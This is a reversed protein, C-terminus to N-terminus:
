QLEVLAALGGEFAAVQVRVDLERLLREIVEEAVRSLSLSVAVIVRIPDRVSARRALAPRRRRRGRGVPVTVKRNVSISPLLRSQSSCGSAIRVARARWSARRVATM